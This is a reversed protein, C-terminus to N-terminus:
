KLLIMKKTEIFNGAKLQYFYIGSPLTQHILGRSNFEVEYSGAPKEENVLTVVEKGLVDFVKITAFSLEPIQYKIITNPNFPNPYNQQLSFGFLVSVEVEIEESYEFSGDFDIQKLRYTYIGSSVDNDTFSYSKPETTTGSGAIYGIKEFESKISKREIEFGRNNVETGTVWNLVVNNGKALAIFLTLEVPIVANTSRLIRGEYGVVCINNRDIIAVNYLGRTTGIIQSYWATGGDTTVLIGNIGNGIIVGNNVDCFAVRSGYYDGYRFWDIGGNTTRYMSSGIAIANNEDIFSVDEYIGLIGSVSTFWNNGGDTTQIIIGYPIEGSIGWGIAFGNNIDFFSV